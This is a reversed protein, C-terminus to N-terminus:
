AETERTLMHNSWHSVSLSSWHQKKTSISIIEGKKWLDVLSMDWGLSVVSLAFWGIYLNKKDAGAGAGALYRLLNVLCFFNLFIGKIFACNHFITLLFADMIMFKILSLFFFIIVQWSPGKWNLPQFNYPICQHQSPLIIWSFFINFLFYHTFFM